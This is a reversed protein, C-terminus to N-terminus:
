PSLDIWARTLDPLGDFVWDPRVPSVDLMARNTAGTLVLIARLGANQAGLIDTELRDGLM